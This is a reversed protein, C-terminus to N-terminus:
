PMADAEENVLHRVEIGFPVVRQLDAVHDRHLRRDVIRGEPAAHPDLVVVEDSVRPEFQEAGKREIERQGSAPRRPGRDPDHEWCCAPGCREPNEWEHSEWLGCGAQHRPQAGKRRDGDAEHWFAVPRAAHRGPATAPGAGGKRGFELIQQVARAPTDQRSPHVIGQPPTAATAAIIPLNAAAIRESLPRRGTAASSRNSQAVISYTEGARANLACFSALATLCGILTAEALRSHFM